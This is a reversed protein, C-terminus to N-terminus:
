EYFSRAKQFRETLHQSAQLVQGVAEPSVTEARQIEAQLRLLPPELDSLFVQVQRIDEESTFYDALTVLQAHATLQRELAEEYGNLLTMEDVSRISVYSSELWGGFLVMLSIEPTGNEVLEEYVERYKRDILYQTSDIIGQTREFQNLTEETFVHRISLRSALENIAEFHAVSRQTQQYLSLYVLDAGFMGLNVARQASTLYERTRKPNNLLEPNFPIGARKVWQSMEVPTPMEGFLDRVADFQDETSPANQETPSKENTDTNKQDGTTSQNCGSILCMICLLYTLPRLKM